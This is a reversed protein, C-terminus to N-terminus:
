MGFEVGFIPYFQCFEACLEVTMGKDDFSHASLSRTDQGDNYCGQYVYPGVSPVPPPSQAHLMGAMILIALWLRGLTTQFPMDSAM